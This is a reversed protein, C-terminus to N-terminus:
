LNYRHILLAKGVVLYLKQLKSGRLPSLWLAIVNLSPLLLGCRVRGIEIRYERIKAVKKNRFM